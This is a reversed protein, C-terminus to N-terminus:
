VRYISQKEKLYAAYDAGGNGSKHETNRQNQKDDFNKLESNLFVDFHHLLPFYVSIINCSQAQPLRHTDADAVAIM